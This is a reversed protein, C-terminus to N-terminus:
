RRRGGKGYCTEHYIGSTSYRVEADRPIEERCTPCIRARDSM